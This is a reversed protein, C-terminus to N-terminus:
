ALDRLREVVADIQIQLAGLMESMQQLTEDVTASRGAFGSAMADFRRILEDVGDAAAEAAELQKPDARGTARATRCAARHQAIERRAAELMGEVPQLENLLAERKVLKDADAPSPLKSTTQM